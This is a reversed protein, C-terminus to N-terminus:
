GKEIASVPSFMDLSNSGLVNDVLFDNVDIGSNNLKDLLGRGYIFLQFM